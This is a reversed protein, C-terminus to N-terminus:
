RKTYVYLPFSSNRMLILKFCRGWFPLGLLKGKICQLAFGLLRVSLWKCCIRAALPSCADIM